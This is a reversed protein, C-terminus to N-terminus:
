KTKTNPNEFFALEKSVKNKRGYLIMLAGFIIYVSAVSIFIYIDKETHTVFSLFPILFGIVILIIGIFKFITVERSLEQAIEAKSKGYVEKAVNIPTEIKKFFEEIIRKDQETEKVFKNFYILSFGLAFSAIIVISYRVISPEAKLNILFILSYLISVMLSVLSLLTKNKLYLARIKDSLMLIAFTSIGAIYVQPGMSWGAVFRAVAGAVLGWIIALFAGWRPISKFILGFALPINVPINFLTFFTVMINFIGFESHVYLLAEAIVILGLILTMIRGFKFQKVEDARPNFLVLYIDRTIISSVFNYVSSLTSMTASLMASMLLGIFGIPLVKLAIGLYVLDNPQFFKKFLDVQSLDPWIIRAVLPPVAFLLPQALSLISALIGVRLASKEDIVSYFRQSAGAAVGITGILYIAILFNLDYFVNNYVHELTLPPANELLGKFGGVFKLSLPAVILTISILIIFQVFDTVLVGWLGGLFTYFLIVVGTSIILIDVDIGFLPSLFKCTASLQAGASLIFNASIVWSLLQQTQINYRTQTYEIPSIVRSRRWRKATLLAGLFYTLIGSSIYIVGYWSSHYIFGAAATFTWASFNTMYLSIGSIWWPVRNGAAFYNRVGKSFKSYYIGISLMLVFYFVLVIYDVDQAFRM